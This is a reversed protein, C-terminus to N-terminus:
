LIAPRMSLNFGEQTSAKGTHALQFWSFFSLSISYLCLSIKKKEKGRGSSSQAVIILIQNEKHLRQSEKDFYLCHEITSKHMLTAVQSLSPGRGKLLWM